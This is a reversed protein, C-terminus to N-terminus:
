FLVDLVEVVDLVGKLRRKFCGRVRAGRTHASGVIRLATAQETQRSDYPTACAVRGRACLAGM